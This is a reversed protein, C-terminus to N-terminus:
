SRPRERGEARRARVVRAREDWQALRERRRRMLRAFDEATPVNPDADKPASGDTAMRAARASLEPEPPPPEGPPIAEGWSLAGEPWPVVLPRVESMAVEVDDM